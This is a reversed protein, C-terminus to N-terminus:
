IPTQEPQTCFLVNLDHRLSKEVQVRRHTPYAGMRPALYARTARPFLRPRCTKTCHRGTRPAKHELLHHDGRPPESGGYPLAPRRSDPRPNRGPAWYASRKETRSAAEGKNLGIQARRQMDADLLWEIIFLTREIRGIERLTLALEHQRPYSAFKRLIQSPPMVGVVMTAVTRLIDPWNEIILKERIKGGILGRLEKPAAAPDFLYLRKSPLDRIRPIFRYSLLATVAFVHDTFGGTDAYQEKIRRGVENMLLGDLIYPAENVTSPINQTAFPGFQDSVHTYAKLGPEAGYKANILNMAEGHRAAPFFQGDSSATVGSGWHEAMPLRSQAAIVMSLARNIADSEVHWRSLRSLQFYDHSSTAEAMKSLGLNLGEALLVNLLGIRDRCPVGTRLHTFAETFGLDNDVEQMLDTIRVPPLRGYLDLVMDHAGEPTASALRDVKLAGNEISGGPIAGTRAAKALRNLSEELRAKRHVLWVEPELPMTLRPSAKAAEIPVLAQKLDAYRRSHPLWADGSRFAERIQFLVAVEWFRNDSVEQTNLYRHWKSNRRLFGTQRHEDIQNNAIIKTAHMLPAAVPAAQIDLARLMRPVYRRFRHYGHVVHALPDAAMTDTLEAAAAVMGELQSWGCAAETAADLSAGDSKAELMAAGLAKFSRLTDQLSSRANAIQAACLKKADQWTKGVIRDHTEIVADATAAHWEVVCVALIALRRDSSIDRLGDAFYREGQRRLRTIRHPPVNALFDPSLGLKQLFELRGLLRSAGASNSGVEFRRLWIFRSVNGDATETLLADLREKIQDDLRNAIRAEIRREAAVLADACLREVVSVGPLITQTRRCEEVFRCALDENSRAVEAERELWAKLGRARRGSFMKYGYVSLVAFRPATLRGHKNRFNNEYRSVMTRIQRSPNRRTDPKTDSAHPPCGTKVLADAPAQLLAQRCRHQRHKRCFRNLCARWLTAREAYNPIMERNNAIYIDFEAAAKRLAKISAYDTEIDDLDLVLDEIVAQGDHLNGHWLFGKIQRLQRSLAEADDPNHHALGKVYQQMVTIRMTIHFWDLIHESAPVMHVVMNIVTDGGDTMFTVPQNEQWGQDKLIEHVRRKPKTDHSQVLGLYRSPRGTPISKGVTVEFHSQGADRSRVYSGDIGVTIQGEPNPLQERQRASTEIFSFREGALETEMRAAVCGLHRRITDPSLRRDIPLVDKLLDATVGFSVLSAWKTELWLLEPAIHDPLLETLPSFTKAAVAQCPCHYFRPSAVTVDGFVTRYRIQGRTKCRRKRECCPCCSREACFAACQMAVIEQQLKLLLDKGEDISLGIEGITDARKDLAGIKETHVTGDPATITVTIEINM